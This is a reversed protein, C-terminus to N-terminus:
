DTGGLRSPTARMHLSKVEATDCWSSKPKRPWRQLLMHLILDPELKHAYILALLM